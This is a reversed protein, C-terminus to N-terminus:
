IQTLFSGENRHLCYIEENEENEKNEGTKYWGAVKGLVDESSCMHM